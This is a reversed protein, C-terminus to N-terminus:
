ELGPLSDRAATTIDGCDANIKAGPRGECGMYRGGGNYCKVHQRADHESIALVALTWNKGAGPIDTFYYYKRQTTM